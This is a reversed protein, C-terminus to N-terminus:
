FDIDAVLFLGGKSNANTAAVSYAYAYGDNKDGDILYGLTWKSGGVKVYLGIETGLFTSSIGDAFSFAGTIHAGFDGFAYDLDLALQDFTAGVDGNASVGLAAGMYDISLGAGWAWWNDSGTPLNGVPATLRYAYGGLYSGSGGGEDITRFDYVFGAAIGLLGGAVGDLKFTVGLAGKLDANDQAMYFFEWEGYLLEPVFVYVGLDNYQGKKESGVPNTGDGEGWPSDIFGDGSQDLNTTEGFGIGLTLQVMGFDLFPKWPLPDIQQRVKTREWAHGTVEYKNTYLSTLGITNKLGIPLGFYSGIDTTLEWYVIQPAGEEGVRTSYEKSQALEFLMSNYEDPWLTFDVYANSFGVGAFDSDFPTIMGFTFEGSMKLVAAKEDYLKALRQEPDYMEMAFVPVAFAVLVVIASLILVLKKM